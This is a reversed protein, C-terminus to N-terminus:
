QTIGAEKCEAPSAAKMPCLKQLMQKRQETMAPKADFDRFWPFYKTYMKAAKPDLKEAAAIDAKGDAEDGARQKAIGRVFLPPAWKPSKKVAAGSDAIADKYRELSVYLVARALYADASGALRVGEDCDPLAEPDTAGHLNLPRNFRAWCRQTFAAGYRPNLRIASTFDAMARNYADLDNAFLVDQLHITGRAYYADADNPTLRIAEDFDHVALKFEGRSFFWKAREKWYEAVSPDLQVADTADALALDKNGLASAVMSRFNHLKAAMKPEQDLKIAEDLDSQASKYKAADFYHVARAALVAARQNANQVQALVTTCAAIAAEVKVAPRKSCVAVNPDKGGAAPAALSAALLLAGFLKAYTSM